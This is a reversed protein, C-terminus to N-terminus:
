ESEVRRVNQRHQTQNGIKQSSDRIQQFGVDVQGAADKAKTCVTRHELYWTHENVLSYPSQSLNFEWTENGTKHTRKLISRCRLPRFGVYFFGPRCVRPTCRLKESIQSTYGPSVIDLTRLVDVSRITSMLARTASLSDLSYQASIALNRKLSGMSLCNEKKTTCETTRGYVKSRYMRSIDFSAFCWFRSACLFRRNPM